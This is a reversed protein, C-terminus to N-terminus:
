TRPKVAKAGLRLASQHREEHCSRRPKREIVTRRGYEGEVVTEVESCCPQGEAAGCQPCWVRIAESRYTLQKDNVAAM